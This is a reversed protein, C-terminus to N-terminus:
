RQHGKCGISRCNYGPEHANWILGCIPAGEAAVPMVGPVPILPFLTEERGEFATWVGYRAYRDKSHVYIDVVTQIM